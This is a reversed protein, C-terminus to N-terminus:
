VVLRVIWIAPIAVLFVTPWRRGMLADGRGFVIVGCVLVMGVLVLPALPHHHLADGVDGHGLAVTAHTMGCFACPWSTAQRFPCGPGDEVVTARQSASGFAGVALAGVICLLWVGAALRAWVDGARAAAM